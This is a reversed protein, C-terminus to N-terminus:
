AVVEESHVGTDLVVSGTCGSTSGIRQWGPPAKQPAPDLEELIQEMLPKLDQLPLGMTGDGSAPSDVIIRTVFRGATLYEGNFMQINQMSHECLSIRQIVDIRPDMVVAEEVGIQGRHTMNGFVLCRMCQCADSNKALAQCPPSGDVTRWRRELTRSFLSQRLAKGTIVPQRKQGTRNIRWATHVYTDPLHDIHKLQAYDLGPVHSKIALLQGPQVKLPVTFFLFPRHLTTPDVPDLTLAKGQDPTPDQWLLRRRGADTLALERYSGAVFDLRGLGYGWDAGLNEAGCEIIWLARRLTALTTEADDKASLFFRLSMPLVLGAPASETQYLSGGAVSGHERHIRIGPTVNTIPLDVLSSRAWLTSVGDRRPNNTEDEAPYKGISEAMALGSGKLRALARRILSAWAMGSINLRGDPSKDLIDDCFFDGLGTGLRLDTRTRWQVLVQLVRTANHINM